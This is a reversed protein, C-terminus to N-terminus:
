RDLVQDGGGAQNGVVHNGRLPGITGGLLPEQRQRTIRLHFEFCQGIGLRCGSGGGAPLEGVARHDDFRDEQFHFGAIALASPPNLGTDKM